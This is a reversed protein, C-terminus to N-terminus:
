EPWDPEYDRTLEFEEHWTETRNPWSVGYQHGGPRFNVRTILGRCREDANKLYVVDELWFTTEITRRM